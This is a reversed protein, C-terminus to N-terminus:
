YLCRNETHYLNTQVKQYIDTTATLIDGTIRVNGNEKISFISNAENISMTNPNKDTYFGFYSTTTNNNPDIFFNMNSVANLAM